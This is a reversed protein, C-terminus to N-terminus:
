VRQKSIPSRATSLVAESATTAVPVSQTDVTEVTAAAETRPSGRTLSAHCGIVRRSSLGFASRSLGPIIILTLPVHPNGATGPFM